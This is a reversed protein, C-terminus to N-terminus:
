LNIQHNISLLCNYKCTSQACPKLTNQWIGWFTHSRYFPNRKQHINEIVQNSLVYTFNYKRNRITFLLYDIVKPINNIDSVFEACRILQCYILDPKIEDVIKKVTNM